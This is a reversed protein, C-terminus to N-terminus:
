ILESPEVLGGGARHPRRPVNEWRACGRDSVPGFACTQTCSREAQEGSAKKFHGTGRPPTCCVYDRRTTAANSAVVASIDPSPRLKRLAKTVTNTVCDVVGIALTGPGPTRRRSAGGSSSARPAPGGGRRARIEGVPGCRRGSSAV